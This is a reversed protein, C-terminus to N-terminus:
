FLKKYLEMNEFIFAPNRCMKAIYLERNHVIKNLNLEIYTINSPMHDILYSLQFENLPISILNIKYRKNKLSYITDVFAIFDEDSIHYNELYIYNFSYHTLIYFIKEYNSIDFLFLNIGNQMYKNDMSFIKEYSHEQDQSDIIYFYENELSKFAGIEKGPVEKMYITTYIVDNGNNPNIIDIDITVHM